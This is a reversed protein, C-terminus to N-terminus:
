EKVPITFFFTTGSGPQSDLWIRGGLKEVIRKCIALGMGTGPYETKGHLRQFIKFIKEFYKEEIGIGNDKVSFVWESDNQVASIEIETKNVNYKIANSFLNTFLRSLLSEDSFVVPLEGYKILANKEEILAAFDEIIKDVITKTSVNKFVKRSTNLRSYDLLNDILVKMRQAGDVAFHIFEKADKDLKDAYRKELLQTFSIVMRIPEQLDHSAIYAFQELEENSEKLSRITNEEERASDGPMWNIIVYAGYKVIQFNYNGTSSKGASDRFNQYLLKIPKGTEYASQLAQPFKDDKRLPFLSKFKGGEITERSLGLSSAASDTVLLFTFDTISSEGESEPCLVALPMQLSGLLSFLSKEAAADTVRTGSTNM